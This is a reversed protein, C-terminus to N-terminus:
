RYITVLSGFERDFVSVLNEYDGSMMEKVIADGDRGLQRALSKAMGMLVFANGDPGQLDVEIRSRM